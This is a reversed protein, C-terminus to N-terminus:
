KGITIGAGNLFLLNYEFLHHIKKELDYLYKGNRKSMFPDCISFLEGVLRYMGYLFVDKISALGINKNKELISLIDPLYHGLVEQLTKKRMYVVHRLLKFITYSLAIKRNAYYIDEIDLFVIQCNNDLLVNAHQLDYHNLHTYNIGDLNQIELTVEMLYDRNVRLLQHSECSLYKQPILIENNSGTLSEVLIKWESPKYDLAPFLERNIYFENSRELDDFKANLELAKIVIDGPHKQGDFLEGEIYPYLMWVNDNQKQTYHNDVNKIPKIINEFNIENIISCQLELLEQMTEDGLIRYDTYGNRSKVSRAIYSGNSTIIKFVCSDKNHKDISYIKKLSGLHYMEVLSNIDYPIDILKQTFGINTEISFLKM